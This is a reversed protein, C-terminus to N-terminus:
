GPPLGLAQELYRRAVETSVKGAMTLAWQGARRLASVLKPRDDQEAAAAADGIAEASAQEREDVSAQQLIRQLRRLEEVLAKQEDQAAIRQTVQQHHVTAHDGVAGTVDRMQYNSGGGTSVQADGTTINVNASRGLAARAETLEGELRRRIRDDDRERRCRYRSGCILLDFLGGQMRIGAGLPVRSRIGAQGAAEWHQMAQELLDLAQGWEQQERAVEARAYDRWGSMYEFDMQRLAVLSEPINADTLGALVEEHMRTMREGHRAADEYSANRLERHFSALEVFATTSAEDSRLSNLMDGLAKDPESSDYDRTALELLERIAVLAERFHNRAADYEAVLLGQMGSFLRITYDCIGASRASWDAQPLESGAVELFAELARNCAVVAGDLDNNLRAEEAHVMLEEADSMRLLGRAADSWRRLERRYDDDPPPETRELERTAIQVLSRNLSRITDLHRYVADYDGLKRAHGVENIFRTEYELEFAIYTRFEEYSLQTRAEYSTVRHHLDPLNGGDGLLLTM